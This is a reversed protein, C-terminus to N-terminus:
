RPRDVLPRSDRTPTPTASREGNRDLLAARDLAEVRAQAARELGIWEGKAGYRVLGARAATLAERVQNRNLLSRVQDLADAEAEDVEADVEPAGAGARQADAPRALRRGDRLSMAGLGGAVVAALFAYSV